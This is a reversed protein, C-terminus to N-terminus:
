PCIDESGPLFDQGIKKSLILLDRWHWECYIFSVKAKAVLTERHRPNM